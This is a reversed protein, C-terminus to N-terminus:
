RITYIAVMEEARTIATYMWRNFEDFHKHREEDVIAVNKWSSGQSAHCTIAYGWDLHVVVPGKKRPEFRAKELEEKSLHVSATCNITDDTSAMVFADDHALEDFLRVKWYNAMGKVGIPNAHIYVIQGNYLNKSRCNSKVIMKDGAVPLNDAYGLKKRIDINLQDKAANTWTIVQNFNTLDDKQLNKTHYSDGFKGYPIPEGMRAMTALMIIPNQENQRLVTEMKFDPNQMINFTDKVPPLQFHDGIYIVKFCKESLLDYIERSVMSAEDVVVISTYSFLSKEKPTFVVRTEGDQTKEVEVRYLFSHLTCAGFIGKRLLVTVAKGTYACVQVGSYLRQIYPIITSKGSGAVGGLVFQKRSSLVFDNIADLANKQENSLTQIRASQAVGGIYGDDSRMDRSIEDYILSRENIM